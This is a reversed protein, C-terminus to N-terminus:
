YRYNGFKLNFLFQDKDNVFTFVKPTGTDIHAAIIRVNINHEALFSKLAGNGTRDKLMKFTDSTARYYVSHLHFLSQMSLSKAELYTGIWIDRDLHYM